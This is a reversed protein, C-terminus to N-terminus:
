EPASWLFYWLKADRAKTHPIWRHGTFEGYLHGTVRFINENSSTMMSFSMHSTNPCPYQQPRNLEASCTWFSFHLWMGCSVTHHKYMDLAWHWIFYNRVYPRPIRIDTNGVQNYEITVASLHCMMESLFHCRLGRHQLPRKESEASPNAGSLDSTQPM